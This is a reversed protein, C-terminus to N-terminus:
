YTWEAHAHVSRIASLKVSDMGTHVSSCLYDEEEEEEKEEGIPV